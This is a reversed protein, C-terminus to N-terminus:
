KKPLTTAVYVSGGVRIGLGEKPRGTHHSRNTNNNSTTINSTAVVSSSSSTNEPPIRFCEKVSEKDNYDMVIIRKAISQLITTIKTIDHVTVHINLKNKHQTSLIRLLQPSIKGTGGTILVNPLSATM